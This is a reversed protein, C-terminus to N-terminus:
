NGRQICDMIIKQQRPFQKLADTGLLFPTKDSLQDFFQKEANSKEM